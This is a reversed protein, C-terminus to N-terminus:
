VSLANAHNRVPCVVRHFGLGFSTPQADLTKQASNNFNSNEVQTLDPATARTASRALLGFLEMPGAVAPQHAPAQPLVAHEDIYRGCRRRYALPTIGVLKRFVTGFYSQSCFAVEQSIDSIPKDTSALFIKAKSIRYQTLYPVFSQGTTRKFFYMFHSNSMACLRAAEEVLLPYGYNQELHRFLPRLRGLDAQKRDVHQRLGRHTSYHKVLLLLIMKLYTKVALRAWVSTAPLETQIRRMLAFAEGPIGTNAPIVHPFNPGQGLFPLLYEMGESDHSTGRILGPDFFVSTLKAQLGRPSVMRHILDSGIVVLDGENVHFFSDQIQVDMWGDSVHFMEFYRHRDLRHSSAKNPTLSRVDMPFTPDLPKM